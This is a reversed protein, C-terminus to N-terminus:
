NYPLKQKKIARIIFLVISLLWGAPYPVILLGWWKLLSSKGGFGGLLSFYFMFYVGFLIMIMSTLFLFHHKDNSLNTSVTVLISGAAIIVSGELPDFAGAILLVAGTIFAFKKWNTKEKIASSSSMTKQVCTFTYLFYSMYFYCGIIITM